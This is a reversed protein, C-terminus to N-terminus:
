STLATVTHHLVMRSDAAAEASLLVGTAEDVTFHCTLGDDPAWASFPFTRLPRVTAALSTPSTPTVHALHSVIRAPTLLEALRAAAPSTRDARLRGDTDPHGGRVDRDM